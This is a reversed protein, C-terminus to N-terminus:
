RRASLYTEGAPPASAWYYMILGYSVTLVCKHSAEPRFKVGGAKPKGAAPRHKVGGNSRGLTASTCTHAFEDACSMM